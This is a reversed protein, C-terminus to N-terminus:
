TGIAALRRELDDLAGHGRPNVAEGRAAEYKRDTASKRQAKRYDYAPKKARVGATRQNGLNM